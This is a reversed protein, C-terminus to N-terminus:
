SEGRLRFLGAEPVDARGHSDPDVPTGDTIANEDVRGVAGRRLSVAVVAQAAHPDVKEVPGHVVLVGAGPFRKLHGHPLVHPDRLPFVPDQEASIRPQEVQVVQPKPSRRGRRRRRRHGRGGRSRGGLHRALFAVVGLPYVDRYALRYPKYRTCVLRRTKQREEHRVGEEGGGERGGRVGRATVAVASVGGKRYRQRVLARTEKTPIEDHGM